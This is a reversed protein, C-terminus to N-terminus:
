HRGDKGNLINDVTRKQFIHYIANMVKKGRVSKQLSHHEMMVKLITGCLIRGESSKALAKIAHVVVFHSFQQRILQFCVNPALLEEMLMEKMQSVDHRDFCKEVFNSSYKLNSLKAVNGRLPEVFAIVDEKCGKEVVYQVCYNGVFYWNVYFAFNTM